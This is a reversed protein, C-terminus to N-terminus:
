RQWPVGPRTESGESVGRVQRQAAPANSGHRVRDAKAEFARGNVVLGAQSLRVASAPGIGSVRDVLDRWTAFLRTKRASMIKECMQPGIGKVSQLDAATASNVEVAAWVPPSLLLLACILVWSLGARCPLCLLSALSRRHLASRPRPTSPPMMIEM